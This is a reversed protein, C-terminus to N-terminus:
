WSPPLYGLFKGLRSKCDDFTLLKGESGMHALSNRHQRVRHTERVIESHIRCKSAIRNIMRESTTWKLHRSNRRESVFDKLISEFEAFLRLTFTAELNQRCRVIDSPAVPETPPLAGGSRISDLVAALCFRAAM